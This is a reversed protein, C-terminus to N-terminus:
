FKWDTYNGDGNCEDCDPNGEQEEENYCSCTVYECVTITINDGDNWPKNTIYYQIRNVYHMGNVIYVGNDGDLETWVHREDQQSVYDEEDGYTEYSIGENTISNVMPLYIEEWQQNSLPECTPCYEQEAECIACFPTCDFGGGHAPCVIKTHTCESM